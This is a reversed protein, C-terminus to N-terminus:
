FMTNENLATDPIAQIVDWHEVVKGGELRFIDVIADGNRGLFGTWHCHMLVCDRDAFVRKIEGKTNPYNAAIWKVYQRLGDFGDAAFPTHQTYSAGGYLRVATDVDGEYVAKQYFAVATRKNEEVDSLAGPHRCLATVEVEMYPYLPLSELIGHLEAPSDVDFISVNAWKGAVRWLHAWKGQRQLEAAREHEREELQKLKEPAVEHPMRVDITVHFLM